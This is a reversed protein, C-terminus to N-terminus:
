VCSTRMDAGEASHFTKLRFQGIIASKIPVFDLNTSSLFYVENRNTVEERRRDYFIM